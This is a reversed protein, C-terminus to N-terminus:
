DIIEDNTIEQDESSEDIVEPSNEDNTIEQDEPSEDNEDDSSEDNTVDQNEPTEDDSSEDNTSEQDEPSENMSDLLAQAETVQINLNEIFEELEEVLFENASDMDTIYMSDGVYCTGLEKNERTISGKLIVTESVCPLGNEGPVINFVTLAQAGLTLVTPDQEPSVLELELLSNKADIAGNETRWIKVESPVNTFTVSYGGKAKKRKNRVFSGKGEDQNEILIVYQSKEQIKKDQSM